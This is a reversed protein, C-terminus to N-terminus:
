ILFVIKMWFSPYQFTYSYSTVRFLLDDVIAKNEPTNIFKELEIIISTGLPRDYDIGQLM